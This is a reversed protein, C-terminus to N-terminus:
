RSRLTTITMPLSDDFVELFTRSPVFKVNTAVEKHLHAEEPVMGRSM